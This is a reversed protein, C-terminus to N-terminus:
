PEGRETETAALRGAPAAEPRTVPDPPASATVPQAPDPPERPRREPAALCGTCVSAIALRARANSREWVAERAARAARIEAALADAERGAAAVGDAQPRIRLFLPEHASAEQALAEQAAAPTGAFLGLLVAAAGLGAPRRRPVIM